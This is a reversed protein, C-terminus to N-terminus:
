KKIIKKLIGFLQFIEGKYVILLIVFPVVQIVMGIWGYNAIIMQVILIAYGITDKKRNIRLNIHKKLIINRMVLTVAFGVLTALAAGYGGFLYIFLFNCITNVVAGIITSISLTKTDKVATFISGIFLSMANFVVSILLPPVFRWADFFERSYLIKAIIMNGIMVGSCLLVMGFNLMTYMHSIFGDSDNKDFEKIASISWAQFFINQFVSLISPIKYSVAYLGSIGIGSIWTLIYRDSANNVWWSLVSFILPFSYMLMEKLVEKSTNFKIYSFLDAAIFCWILSIAAGLSNAILYGTLEWKLYVLFIINSVVSVVSYLIGASVMVKVKDIGRCFLSVSNNIASTLYMICFFLLYSNKLNKIKLQSIILVGVLIIIFGIFIVKLAISFVDKRDCKKDMAFRMVADQIDLTFIPLLLTVTTSILDSIGYERTTLCSTYIPVLAFILIKPVFGSIMFLFINKSLYSYKEKM